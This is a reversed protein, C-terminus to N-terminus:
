KEKLKLRVSVRVGQGPETDVKFRAGIKEARENMTQLGFHPPRWLDHQWPAFGIGNDQITLLLESNEVSISINVHTASSHKRANNIAEQVIRLLQLETEPEIFFDEAGNGVELFVRFDSLRNCMTVYDRLSKVLGAGGQEVLKLGIISARVELAQKQVAEDMQDLNEEVDSSNQKRLHIRITTIKAALYALLQAVGDHLEHAIREREEIIAEQRVIAIERQEKQHNELSDAIENFRDALRTIEDETRWTKPIRISFNGEAFATLYEYLIGVRNIVLWQILMYLIITVFLISLISIVINYIQDEHIHEFAVSLPADIILAGLHSNEAPHCTQCQAENPIPTVVRLVEKNEGIKIQIVKPRESPLYQHCEDCGTQELSFITGVEDSNASAVVEFNLNIIRIENISPNTGYNRIIRAVVEQDNRQMSNKMGLLAMDGLQVTGRQIYEELEKQERIYHVYSFSALILIMPAAFVVVVKIRLSANFFKSRLIKDIFKM